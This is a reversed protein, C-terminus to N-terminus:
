HYIGPLIVLEGRFALQRKANSTSTSPQEVYVSYKYTEPEAPEDYLLAAVTLRIIWDQDKDISGVISINANERDRGADELDVVVKATPYEDLLHIPVLKTGDVYRHTIPHGGMVTHDPEQWGAEMPEYIQCSRDKRHPDPWGMHDHMARDHLRVRQAEHAEQYFCPIAVEATSGNAIYIKGPTTTVQMNRRKPHPETPFTRYGM